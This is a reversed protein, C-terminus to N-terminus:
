TACVELFRVFLRLCVVLVGDYLLGCVIPACMFLM